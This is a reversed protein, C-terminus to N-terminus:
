AQTRENEGDLEGLSKRVMLAIQNPGLKRIQETFEAAIRAYRDGESASIWELRMRSEDVGFEKLLNRLLFMRRRTKYNGSIYHCDGPHCGTVLVGDAGNQLAKLVWSPDIRGSCMVRVTKLNAPYQTRSTGAM